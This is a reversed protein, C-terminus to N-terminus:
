MFRQLNGETPKCDLQFELGLFGDGSTAELLYKKMTQQGKESEPLKNRRGQGPISLAVTPGLVAAALPQDSTSILIPSTIEGHM